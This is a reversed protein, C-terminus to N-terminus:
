QEKNYKDLIQQAKEQQKKAKELEYNKINNNIKSKVNIFDDRLALLIFMSICILLFGLCLFFFFNRSYYSEFSYEIFSIEKVPSDKWYKIYEKVSMISEIFCLIVTLVSTVFCGWLSFKLTKKM